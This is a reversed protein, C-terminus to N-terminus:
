TLESVYVRYGGKKVITKVNGFVEKMKKEFQKGGKNHRAVLQFLGKPFLHDKAKEIMQMCIEKGATQPPNLLITNFKREKVADYSDGQIVEVDVGNLKANKRSLMVSRENIDILTVKSNLIVKAITIGVSGYGCGLDLVLWNKEIICNNVLLLTGFDIKDKSFVGSGTFFALGVGRIITNIKKIIFKSKPRKTFYHEFNVQNNWVM